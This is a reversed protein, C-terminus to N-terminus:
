LVGFELILWLDANSVGESNEFGLTLMRHSDAYVGKSLLDEAMDLNETEMVLVHALRLRTQMEVKISVKQRDM